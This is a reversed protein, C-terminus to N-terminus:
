RTAHFHFRTLAIVIALMLIDLPLPPVMHTRELSTLVLTAFFLAILRGRLLRVGAADGRHRLAKCGWLMVVGFPVVICLPDVGAQLWSCDM